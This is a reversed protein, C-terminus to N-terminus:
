EQKRELQKVPKYVADVADDFGRARRNPEAGCDGMKNLEALLEQGTTYGRVRQRERRDEPLISISLVNGGQFYRSRVEYNLRLGDETELGIGYDSVDIRRITKGILAEIDLANM